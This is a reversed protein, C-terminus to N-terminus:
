KRIVMWHASTRGTWPLGHRGHRRRYDDCRHQYSTIDQEIDKRGLWAQLCRSAWWFFNRPIIKDREPVASVSGLAQHLPVRVEFHSYHTTKQRDTQRERLYRMVSKQYSSSAASSTHVDNIEDSDVGTCQYQNDRCSICCCTRSDCDLIADVEAMASHLTQHSEDVNEQPTNPKSHRILWHM